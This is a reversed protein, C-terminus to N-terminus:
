GRRAEGEFKPIKGLIPLGVAEEIFKEDRVTTDTLRRIFVIAVAIFMGVIGGMAVAMAHDDNMAGLPEIAYDVISINQVGVIDEAQTILVESFANAIYAARSASTDDYAIYMFRTGEITIVNLNRILQEHWVEGNLDSIIKDTVLRSSLLERYDSVLENSFKLDNVNISALVSTDKGIFLTSQARYIPVTYANSLWYSLMGVVVMCGIVLWWKGIVALMLERLNVNQHQENM